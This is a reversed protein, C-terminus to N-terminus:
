QKFVARSSRSCLRAIILAFVTFLLLLLAASAAALTQVTMCVESYDSHENKVSSVTFMQKEHEVFSSDTLIAAGAATEEGLDLVTIKDAAIDMDIIPMTFRQSSPRSLPQDTSRDRKSRSLKEKECLPPTLGRCIGDSKMCLSISCQFYVNAKDAFKFVNSAVFAQNTMENYTLDNVITQDIACSFPAQQQLQLNKFFLLVGKEDLLSFKNEGAGDDVYCSHVLMGFLDSDCQWVHYVEEGVKAFNVGPGNISGRRVKYTCTPMRATDILDTTALNSVEFESTVIRDTEMFFCTCRYARDVKTVFTDHFSVIVTMSQEVGRQPGLRRQKHMNCEGNKLKYVISSNKNDKYRKYCEPKEAMGKVFIRGTFPKETNFVMTMQHDECNVQPVGPFLLLSM